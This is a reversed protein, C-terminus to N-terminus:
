HFVKLGLRPPIKKPPRPTSQIPPSGLRILIMRSVLYKTRLSSM